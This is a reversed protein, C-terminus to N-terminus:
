HASPVQAPPSGPPGANQQSLFETLVQISNQASRAVVTTSDIAVLRRWYELAQKYIQADAFAVGLNYLAEQNKPELRLAKQYLATAQNIQGLAYQANGLNNIARVNTSDQALAKQYAQV